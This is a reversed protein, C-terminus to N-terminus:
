GAWVADDATEMADDIAENAAMWLEDAELRRDGAAALGSAFDPLSGDQERAIERAVRTLRRELVQLARQDAHIALVAQSGDPYSCVTDTRRTETEVAERLAESGLRGRRPGIRLIGAGTLYRAHRALEAEVRERFVEPRVRHLDGQRWPVHTFPIDALPSDTSPFM